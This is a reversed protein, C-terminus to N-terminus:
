QVVGDPLWEDEAMDDAPVLQVVLKNPLCVIMETGNSIWGNQVCIQDPCQAESVCIRGYEVSIINVGISGTVAFSYPKDVDGLEIQEVCKEDPM